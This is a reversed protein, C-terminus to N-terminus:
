NTATTRFRFCKFDAHGTSNDSDRKLTYIGAKAGIWTGAVAQFKQPV